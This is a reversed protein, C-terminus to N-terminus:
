RRFPRVLAGLAPAPLTSEVPGGWVTDAGQPLALIFDQMCFNRKGRRPASHSLWPRASPRPRSPSPLSPTLLKECEKINDQEHGKLSLSTQQWVCDQRGKRRGQQQPQYQQMRLIDGESSRGWDGKKRRWKHRLAKTNAFRAWPVDALPPSAELPSCSEKLGGLLGPTQARTHAVVMQTRRDGERDVPRKSSGSGPEASKASPAAEKEKRKTKGAWQLGEGRPRLRRERWRGVEMAARGNALPRTSAQDGGAEPAM